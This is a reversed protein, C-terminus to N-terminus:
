DGSAREGRFGEMSAKVIGSVKGTSEPVAIECNAITFKFIKIREEILNDPNHSMKM